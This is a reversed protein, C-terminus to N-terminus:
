EFVKTGKNLWIGWMKSFGHVKDTEEDDKFVPYGQNKWEFIGGYLNFVYKFDKAILQEAIKESRYGISCYIIIPQDRNLGKVSEFDFNDYGVWKADQIRSVEFESKGRADLVVWSDYRQVQEPSIEPVSHSLMRKLMFGYKKNGVEPQGSLVAPIM